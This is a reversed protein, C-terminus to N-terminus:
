EPSPLTAYAAARWWSSTRGEPMNPGPIVQTMMIAVLGTGPSVFFDTDFYGGWGFDGPVGLAPRDETGPLVIGVGYGYTWGAMSEPLAEGPVQPQTMAALTEESLLRVGDLEGGNALMMAFRLYDEGTSVLGGGGSAWTPRYEESDHYPDVLTGGEIHTYVGAVSDLEEDAVFFTTHQMGLPTFIEDQLFDEFPRGSAVEIVRGLVDNAYSYFWREGPQFYLPFEALANIKDELDGDGQYLTGAIMAQGLDTRTDFIYGVGSTHTLLHRITIPTTVPTTAFEGAENAQLSTAVEVDAFAPIYQSVPDDLAIVGREVLMMTATATVPKTMSALRVPTTTLMPAEGGLLRSGSTLTQREGNRVLIVAYGARRGAEVRSDMEHQFADLGAQSFAQAFSAAPASLVLLTVTIVTRFM